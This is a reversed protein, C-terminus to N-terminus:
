KKASLLSTQMSVNLMNRKRWTEPARAVWRAGQLCWTQASSCRQLTLNLSLTCIGVVVAQKTAVSLPKQSWSINSWVPQQNLAYKRWLSVSLFAPVWIWLCKAPFFPLGTMYIKPVFIWVIIFMLLVCKYLDSKAQHQWTTLLTSPPSLFDLFLFM